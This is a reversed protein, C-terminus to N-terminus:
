IGGTSSGVDLIKADWDAYAEKKDNYRVPTSEYVVTVSFGEGDKLQNFAETGKKPIGTIEVTLETTEKGGELITPNDKTGYYYYGDENLKSWGVSKATSIGYNKGEFGTYIVKARIFVPQSDETSKIVVHKTWDSFKEEITTTDGTKIQIGGQARVYTSFYAVAPQISACLILAVVLVTLLLNRKKM